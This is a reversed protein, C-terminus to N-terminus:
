YVTSAMWGGTALGESLRDSPDVALCKSVRCSADLNETLLTGVPFDM